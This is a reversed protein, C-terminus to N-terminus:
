LGGAQQLSMKQFSALPECTALAIGVPQLDCTRHDAAQLRLSPLVMLSIALSAELGATLSTTWRHWVLLDIRLARESCGPARALPCASHTLRSTAPTGRATAQDHAQTNVSEPNRLARPGLGSAGAKVANVAAPARACAQGLKQTKAGAAHLHPSSTKQVPPACSASAYM